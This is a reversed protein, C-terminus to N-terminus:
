GILVPKLWQEGERFNQGEIEGKLKVTHKLGGSQDCEPTKPYSRGGWVHIGAYVTNDEPGENVVRAMYRSCTPGCEQTKGPFSASGDDDIILHYDHYWDDVDYSVSTYLIHSFYTEIPIYFIGDNIYDHM